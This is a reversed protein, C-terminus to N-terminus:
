RIIQLNKDNDNNINVQTLESFELAPTNKALWIMPAAFLTLIAIILLGINVGFYYCFLASLPAGVIKGILMYNSIGFYIYRHEATALQDIYLGLLSLTFIEGLTFIIAGFYYGMVHTTSIAISILGCALLLIGFLIVTHINFKKVYHVLPMQLFVVSIGNIAYMVVFVHVNATYHFTIYAFLVEMQSFGIFCLIAAIIFYLLKKDSFLLTVVGFFNTHKSKDKFITEEEGTLTFQLLIAYLLLSLSGVFFIWNTNLIGLLMAFIPGVTTGINIFTYRLSFAFHKQATSTACSIFSQGTTEIMSRCIGILFFCVIFGGGVIYINNVFKSLLGMLIFMFAYAFIAIKIRNFPQINQLQKGSLSIWFAQALYSAGIAVGAWYIPLHKIQVLLVTMYPLIMSTGFRSILTGIIIAFVAYPLYFHQKIQKTSM